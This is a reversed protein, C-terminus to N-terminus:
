MHLSSKNAFAKFIDMVVTSLINSASGIEVLGFGAYEHVVITEYYECNM